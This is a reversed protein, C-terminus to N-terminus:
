RNRLIEGHEEHLEHYPNRPQDFSWRLTLEFSYLHHRYRDPFSSSGWVELGRIMKDLETLYEIFLERGAPEDHPHSNGLEKIKKHTDNFINLFHDYSRKKEDQKINPIYKSLETYADNVAKAQVLYRKEIAM